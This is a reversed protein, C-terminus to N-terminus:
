AQYINVKQYPYIQQIIKEMESVEKDSDFYFYFRHIISTEDGVYGFVAEQFPEDTMLCIEAGENAKDTVHIRNKNSSLVVGNQGGIIINKSNTLPVSIM